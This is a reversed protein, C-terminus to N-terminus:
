MRTVFFSVANPHCFFPGGESSVLPIGHRDTADTHIRTLMQNQRVEFARVPISADVCAALSNDDRVSRPIQKRKCRPSLLHCCIGRSFWARSSLFYLSCDPDCFFSGSRSSFFSGGEPSLFSVANPHCFHESSLFLSVVNSIVRSSDTHIRLM